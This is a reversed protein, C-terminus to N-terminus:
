TKKFRSVFATFYEGLKSSTFISTEFFLFYTEIQTVFVTKFEFASFDVPKPCPIILSASKFKFPLIEWM